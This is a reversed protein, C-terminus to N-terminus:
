IKWIRLHEINEKTKHKEYTKYKSNGRGRGM